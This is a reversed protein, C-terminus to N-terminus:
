DKDDNEADEKERAKDYDKFDDPKVWFDAGPGEVRKLYAKVRAVPVAVTAKTCLRRSDDSVWMFARGTRVFLGNFKSVPELKLSCIQLSGQATGAGLEPLQWIEVEDLLARYGFYDDFASLKLCLADQRSVRYPGTGLPLSAFIRFLLHWLPQASTSGPM